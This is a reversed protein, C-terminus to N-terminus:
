NIFNEEYLCQGFGSGYYGFSLNPTAMVTPILVAFLMSAFFAIGLILLIACTAFLKSYLLLSILFVVVSILVVRVSLMETGHLIKKKFFFFKFIFRPNGPM